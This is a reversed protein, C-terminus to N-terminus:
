ACVGLCAAGASLGAVASIDGRLAHFRKVHPSPVGALLNAVNAHHAPAAAARQAPSPTAGPRPENKKANDMAHGKPRIFSYSDGKAGRFNRSERLSLCCLRLNRIRIAERPISKIEVRRNKAQDFPHGSGGAPGAWAM